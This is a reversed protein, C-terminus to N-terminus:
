RQDEKRYWEKFSGYEPNQDSPHHDTIPGEGEKSTVRVTSGDEDVETVRASHVDNRALERPDLKGNGNKDTGYVIVDGVQNPENPDLKTAGQMDDRPSNDWNPLLPSNAPDDTDGQKNHWADSHCNYPHSQPKRIRILRENVPTATGPHEKRPDDIEPDFPREKRGDPDIFMYPSNAAYRYRNFQTIPDSLAEVPDPSLFRGILPDYYRQVSPGTTRKWRRRHTAKIRRPAPAPHVCTM